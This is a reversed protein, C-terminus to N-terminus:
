EAGHESLMKNLFVFDEAPLLELFSRAELSRETLRCFGEIRLRDDRGSM